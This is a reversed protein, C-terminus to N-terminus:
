ENDNEVGGDNKFCIDYYICNKCQKKMCDETEM